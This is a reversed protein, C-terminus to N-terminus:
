RIGKLKKYEHLADRKSIEAYPLGYNKLVEVLSWRIDEKPFTKKIYDWEVRGIDLYPDM